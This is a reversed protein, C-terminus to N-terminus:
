AQESVWIQARNQIIDVTEDLTKEGKFYAMIEENIIEWLSRDLSVEWREISEIYERFKEVDKM